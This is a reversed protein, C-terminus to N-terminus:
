KGETKRFALGSLSILKKDLDSVGRAAADREVVGM